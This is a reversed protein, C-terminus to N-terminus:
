RKKCTGINIQNKMFAIYEQSKWDHAFSKAANYRDNGRFRCEIKSIIRNDDQTKITEEIRCENGKFSGIVKKTVVALKNVIPIQSDYTCAHPACLKINKKLYKCKIKEQNARKKRGHTPKSSETGTSVSTRQINDVTKSLDIEFQEEIYKKDKFHLMTVFAIPEKDSKFNVSHSEGMSMILPKNGIVTKASNFPIFELNDFDKRKGKIAFKFNLKSKKKLQIATGTELKYATGALDKRSFYVTTYNTPFYARLTYTDSSAHTPLWFSILALKNNFEKQHEKLKKGKSDLIEFSLTRYFLKNLMGVQVIRKGKPNIFVGKIKLPIASKFDLKKFLSDNTNKQMRNLRFPMRNIRNLIIMKNIMNKNFSKRKVKKQSKIWKPNDISTSFIEKEKSGKGKNIASHISDKGVLIINLTITFLIAIISLLISYFLYKLNSGEKSTKVYTKAIIDHLTQNKETFASLLYGFGLILGSLISSLSRVLAKAFGIKEGVQDCVHLGMAMGGLTTQCTALFCTFYTTSISWFVLYSQLGKSDLNLGLNIIILCVSLVCSDLISACAKHYFGAYSENLENPKIQSQDSSQYQMPPRARQSAKDIKCQVM